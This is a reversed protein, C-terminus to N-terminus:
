SANKQEVKPHPIKFVFTSGKEPQSTVWISGGHTEVIKKCIALGIGTGPYKNRAHLRQFVEFIKKSYQPPVGIGNDQISFEWGNESRDARISIMPNKDSRYKIANEILNQFLQVYQIQSGVVTPLSGVEITANNAKVEASLNLLAQGVAKECDFREAAATKSELQSLSLLSSILEQMRKGAGIATELRIMSGNRLLDENERLYLQLSTIITRIPEKLDHSAVQAFQELETNSRALDLNAEKLHHNSEELAAQAKKLEEYNKRYRALLSEYSLSLRRLQRVGIAALLLGIILLGIGGLSILFRSITETEKTRSGKLDEEAKLFDSIKIRVEDKLTDNPGSWPYAVRQGAKKSSILKALKSHWGDILVHLEDIRKTQSPNDSVLKRLANILPSLSSEARDFYRLYSPNGSDVFGIAGTELDGVADDLLAASRIVDESHSVWSASTRLHYFELVFAGGFLVVLAFPISIAQAFLRRFLHQNHAAFEVKVESVGCKRDTRGRAM